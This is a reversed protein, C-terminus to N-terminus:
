MTRMGAQIATADSGLFGEVMAHLQQRIGCSTADDADGAIQPDKEALFGKLREVNSEAIHVLNAENFLATQLLQSREFNVCESTLPLDASSMPELQGEFSLLGLRRASRVYGVLGAYKDQLVEFRPDGLAEGIEVAKLAGFTFTPSALHGLRCLQNIDDVFNLMNLATAVQGPLARDLNLQTPKGKRHFDEGAERRALERAAEVGMFDDAFPNRVRLNKEQDLREAESASM